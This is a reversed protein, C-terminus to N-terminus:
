KFIQGQFKFVKTDKNLWTDPRLGAKLCTHSLFEEKDMNHEPAVQPLLLGRYFGKEVILGDEGIIINDLYDIPKDVEILEPKTLVTIEYELSDLESEGVEPFRPDRVAASIASEITAEVLPFIPEPYGICGRLNNNKNLTVFVGLKERLHEPCDSPVDIKDHEKVYTEIADKALELLYKGDDESLM